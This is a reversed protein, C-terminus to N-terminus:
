TVILMEGKELLRVRFDPSTRIPNWGHNHQMGISVLSDGHKQVIRGLYYSSMHSVIVGVDGDEMSGVWIREPREKKVLEIM